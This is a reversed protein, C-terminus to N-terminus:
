ADNECICPWNLWRLQLSCRLVLRPANVARILLFKDRHPSYFKLLRLVHLRDAQFAPQLWCDDGFQRSVIKSQWDNYM